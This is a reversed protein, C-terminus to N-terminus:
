LTNLVSTGSCGILTYMVGSLVDLCVSRHFHFRYVILSLKTTKLLRDVPRWFLGGPGACDAKGANECQPCDLLQVNNYLICVNGSNWNKLNDVNKLNQLSYIFTQGCSYIFTQFSRLILSNGFLKGKQNNFRKPWSSWRNRLNWIALM